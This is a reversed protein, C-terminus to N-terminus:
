RTKFTYRCVSVNKSIIEPYHDQFLVVAKRTTHAVEKALHGISNKMDTIQLFSSVGGEQFGLMRIGNEMSRVRWRVFKERSECTGFTKEFLAKDEFAGYKYFYLPHGERDTGDFYLVNDYDSGFHDVHLIGEIKFEKRWKLTRKLMRFAEGPDFDAARLFKILVPDTGDHCTCPLFPIGWLTVDEPGKYPAKGRAHCCANSACFSSRESGGPNPSVQNCPIVTELRSRFERLAM